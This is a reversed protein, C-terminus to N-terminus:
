CLRYTQGMFAFVYKKHTGTSEDKEGSLVLVFLLRKNLFLVVMM